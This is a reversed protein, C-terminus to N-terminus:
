KYRHLTNDYFIHHELRVPRWSDEVLEAKLWKAIEKPNGITASLSIIRTSPYNSLLISIIIELTPGRKEDNLLHIEDIIVLGVRDLIERSHRIHSDLKESTIILVDFPQTHHGNQIDGVSVRISFHEGYHSTFDRYKEGALAKLPVIYLVSKKHNILTHLMSLEAVLTKGSATPSCILQNSNSTFLGVEISKEQCPRLSKINQKSLYRRIKPPIQDFYSKKM